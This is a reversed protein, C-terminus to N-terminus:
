PQNNKTKVPAEAYVDRIYNSRNQFTTIRQQITKLLGEILIMIREEGATYAEVAVKKQDATLTTGKVMKENKGIRYFYVADAYMKQLRGYWVECKKAQQWLIEGDDSLEEATLQLITQVEPMIKEAWASWREEQKWHFDNM